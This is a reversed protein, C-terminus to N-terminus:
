FKAVEPFKEIMEVGADVFKEGESALKEFSEFGFRHVDRLQKNVVILRGTTLIMRGFGEHSMKMMPQVMCGTRREIALGVANYFLELRWLMEPDPDGIIPIEKRQEKTVIYPDLLNLDTKKEWTGHTDQARWVKILEKLFISDEPKSATEVAAAESM